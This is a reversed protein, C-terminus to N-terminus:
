FSWVAWPIIMTGPGLVPIVDLVGTMMGMALPSEAGLITFGIMCIIISISILVIQARVYGGVVTSFSEYTNLVSQRHRRPFFTSIVGKIKGEDRCWYFIAVITILIVLFVAPTGKAVSFLWSLGQSAWTSINEKVIDLYQQIPGIDLELREFLEQIYAMFNGTYKNVDGTYGSLTTLLDSVMSVVLMGVLTLVLVIMLMVALVALSRPFHLKEELFRVVPKTIIAVLWAVAFPFIIIGFFDTIDGLAPLIGYYFLSFAVSAGVVIMVILLGRLLEEKSLEKM